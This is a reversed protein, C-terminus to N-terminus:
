GLRDVLHPAHIEDRVAQGIAPADFAQGYGIVEAMLAQLDGHVLADRALIHCANQVPHRHKPAVRQGNAGVVAGLEGTALKQGPCMRVTHAVDQDLRASGHLVAIDLAEIALEAILAQVLLPELCQGLSALLNGVPTLVVVLDSWVTRQPTNWRRGKGLLVSAAGAGSRIGDILV